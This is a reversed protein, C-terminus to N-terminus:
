PPTRLDATTHVVSFLFMSLPFLAMLQAVLLVLTAQSAFVSAAAKADLAYQALEIGGGAFLPADGDPHSGWTTRVPSAIPAALILGVIGDFLWMVLVARPRRRARISPNGLLVIRERSPPASSPASSIAPEESMTRPLNRRARGLLERARALPAYQRGHRARK